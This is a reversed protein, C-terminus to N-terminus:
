QFGLWCSWSTDINCLCKQINQENMVTNHITVCSIDVKKEEIFQLIDKKGTVYLLICDIVTLM